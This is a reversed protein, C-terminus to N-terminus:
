GSKDKTNQFSIFLISVGISYSRNEPTFGTCKIAAEMIDAGAANAMALNNYGSVCLELRFWRLLTLNWGGYTFQIMWVSDNM